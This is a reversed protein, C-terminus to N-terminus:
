FDEVCLHIAAFYKMKNHNNWLHSFIVQGHLKAKSIPLTGYNRFILAVIGIGLYTRVIGIKLFLEWLESDLFISINGYNRNKESTGV